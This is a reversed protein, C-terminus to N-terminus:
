NSKPPLLKLFRKSINESYDEERIIGFPQSPTEPYESEDRFPIERILDSIEIRIQQYELEGSRFEDFILDIENLLHNQIYLHDERSDLSQFIAALDKRIQAMKEEIKDANFHSYKLKDISKLLRQIKGPVGLRREIRVIEADKVEANMKFDDFIWQSFTRADKIIYDVGSRFSGYNAIILLMSGVTIWVKLSGTEVNVELSIKEGFLKKSVIRGETELYKQILALDKSSVSIKFHFYAEAIKPM